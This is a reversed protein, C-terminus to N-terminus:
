RVSAAKRGQEMALLRSKTSLGGPASFGGLGGGSGVVRHCPVVLPVPNRAMCNGVARAAHPSGVATAMEAYSLTEGPRIRRCREYVRRQFPTMSPWDVPIASLDVRDGTAFRKLRAVWDAAPATPRARLEAADDGLAAIAAAPEDHGFTLRTLGQQGVTIGMWGLRTLFVHSWPAATRTPRPKAALLNARSM